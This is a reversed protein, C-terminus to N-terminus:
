IKSSIIAILLLIIIITLSISCICRCINIYDRETCCRVNIDTENVIDEVRVINDFNHFTYIKDTFQISKIKTRCMPCSNNTNLWKIICVLHFKKKCIPCTYKELNRPSLCICCSEKETNPNETNNIYGLDIETTM